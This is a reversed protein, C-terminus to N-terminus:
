VIKPILVNSLVITALILPLAEVALRAELTDPAAPLTKYLEAAFVVVVLALKVKLPVLPLSLATDNEPLPVIGTPPIIIHDPLIPVM